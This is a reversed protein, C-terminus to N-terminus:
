PASLAKAPPPHQHRKAIIDALEEATVPVKTNTM